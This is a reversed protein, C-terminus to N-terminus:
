NTLDATTDFRESILGVIINVVVVAAIFVVTLVISISGHKFSRANFKRRAKEPKSEESNEAAIEAAETEKIEGSIVEEQIEQNKPTKKEKSM